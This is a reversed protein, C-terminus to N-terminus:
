AHLCARPNGLRCGRSRNVAADAIKAEEAVDHNRANEPGAALKVGEEHGLSQHIQHQGEHSAGHGLRSHRHEGRLDACLPNVACLEFM